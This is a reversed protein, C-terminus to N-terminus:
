DIQQQLEETKDFVQEIPVNEAAPLCSKTHNDLSTESPFHEGCVNCPWSIQSINETHTLHSIM